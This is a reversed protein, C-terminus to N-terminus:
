TDSGEGRVRDGELVEEERDAGPQTEAEVPPGQARQLVGRRGVVAEVRGGEARDGQGRPVEGGVLEDSREPPGGSGGEGGVVEIGKASSSWRAV